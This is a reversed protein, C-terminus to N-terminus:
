ACSSFLHTIVPLLLVLELSGMRPTRMVHSFYAGTQYYAVTTLNRSCVTEHLGLWCVCPVRPCPPSSCHKEFLLDCDTRFEILRLDKHLHLRPWLHYILSLNWYFHLAERIEGIEGWGRCTLITTVKERSYSNLLFMAVARIWSSSFCVRKKFGLIM